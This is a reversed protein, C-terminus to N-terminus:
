AASLAKKVAMYVRGLGDFEDKTIRKETHAATAAKVALALEDTTRAGNMDQTLQSLVDTTTMSPAPITDRTPELAPPPLDSGDDLFRNLILALEKGPKNFIKGDLASGLRHKGVVLNHDMDMMGEVTFEYEFQNRMEPAMGLKKVNSNGKEDKGKEYETKARMCCIVHAPSTQIAAIVRRYVPDVAKWAAFSDGRQNRAQMRKVEVDIMELMGGVSNWFHSLSDIIIFDVGANGLEEVVTILKLPDYVGKFLPLENGNKDQEMPVFFNFEDSYLAASNNESDILAIQKGGMATAIALSSWTKGSGSPGHIAMRLRSKSKTAKQLTIKM